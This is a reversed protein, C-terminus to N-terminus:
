PAVPVDAYTSDPDSTKKCQIKIQQSPLDGTNNIQIRLIAPTTKAQTINVNQAAITTASAENGDDNYFGFQDQDQSLGVIVAPITPFLGIFIRSPRSM